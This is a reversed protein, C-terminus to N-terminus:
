HFKIDTKGTEFLLVLPYTARRLHEHHMLILDDDLINDDYVLNIEGGVGLERAAMGKLEQVTTKYTIEYKTLQSESKVFMERRFCSM